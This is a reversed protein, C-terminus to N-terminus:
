SVISRRSTSLREHLSATDCGVLDLDAYSLQSSKLFKLWETQLLLAPRELRTCKIHQDGLEGNLLTVDLLVSITWARLIYVETM